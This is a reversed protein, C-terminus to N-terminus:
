HFLFAAMQEQCSAVRECRGKAREAQSRLSSFFVDELCCLTLYLFYEGIIQAKISCFGHVRDSTSIQCVTSQGGAETGYHQRSLRLGTAEDVCLYVHEDEESPKQFGRTKYMLVLHVNFLHIPFAPVNELKM